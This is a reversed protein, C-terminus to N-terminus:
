VAVEGSLAPHHKYNKLIVSKEEEKFNLLLKIKDTFVLQPPTYWERDLQEKVKEFHNEYIHCDGFSHTFYGAELDNMNAFLHTLLSYMAINYPVGLFMDGSRQYLHCDIRNNEHNINWQALTHCAVPTKSTMFWDSLNTDWSCLILRRASNANPDEKVCKIQDVLDSTQGFWTESYSPSVYGEKNAWADWIHIDNERLYEINSRGSLFWALEKKVINWSIKRTTLLPFGDQLNFRMPNPAFLSKTKPKVGDSLTARQEKTEGFYLVQRLLDLYTKEGFEYNM